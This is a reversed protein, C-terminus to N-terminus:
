GLRTALERLSRVLLEPQELAPRAGGRDHEHWEAVRHEREVFRRLSPADLPFCHVSLPVRSGRSPALRLERYLASRPTVDGSTWSLSLGTLLTDRWAARVPPEPSDLLQSLAFALEELPTEPLESGLRENLECLAALQSKEARSLRALAGSGEDPYAAVSTVQVGAVAAPESAALELAVGAGLDSGHVLYRSYGLSCMLEACVAALQARSTDRADLSPCVVHLAPAGEAVPAALTAAISGLEAASGSYGHLLLLPLATPTRARVHVFDLTQSEGYLRFSPLRFLPQPALEFDDQWYRYLEALANPDVGYLASAALVEDFQRHQRLRSALRRQAAESPLLRCPEIEPARRLVAANM